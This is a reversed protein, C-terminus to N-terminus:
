SPGGLGVFLRVKGKDGWLQLVLLVWVVNAVPIAVGGRRGVILYHGDVFLVHLLLFSSGILHAEQKGGCYPHM